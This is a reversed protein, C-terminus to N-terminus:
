PCASVLQCRAHMGSLIIIIIIIHSRPLPVEPDAAAPMPGGYEALEQLAQAGGAGAGAM